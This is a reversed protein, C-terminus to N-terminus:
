IMPVFFHGKDDRKENTVNRNFYRYKPYIEKAMEFHPDIDEYIQGDVYSTM